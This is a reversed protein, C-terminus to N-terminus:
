FKQQSFWGREEQGQPPMKASLAPMAPQSLKASKPLQPSEIETYLILNREDQKSLRRHELAKDDWKAAARQACRIIKNKMELFSAIHSKQLLKRWFNHLTFNKSYIIMKQTFKRPHKQHIKTSLSSHKNKLYENKCESEEVVRHMLLLSYVCRPYYLLVSFLYVSNMQFSKCNQMKDRPISSLM